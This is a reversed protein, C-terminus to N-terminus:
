PLVAYIFSCLCSINKNSSCLSIFMDVFRVYMYFTHKGANLAVLHWKGEGYKQIYNKLLMDEEATWPGKRVMTNGGPRM